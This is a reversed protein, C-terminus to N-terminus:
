KNKEYRMRLYKLSGCFLAIDTILVIFAIGFLYRPDLLFKAKFSEKKKFFIHALRLICVALIGWFFLHNVLYGLLFFALLVTYVRFVSYHWDKARGALIDYTSFERFRNFIGKISGPIQWYVLAKDTYHIKAGLERAKDMFIKDEGARFAPFGGVRQCARKKFLSSAIFNTRFAKGGIKDKPPIYAILSCEKMFSDIEPEYAGYVAEITGDEEMPSAIEELWRRDLRIGGDTFAILKNVSHSVGINRGEGPYAKKTEILRIRFPAKERNEKIISATRDRSGGDVFIAEDPLLTGGAISDILGQVSEEENKVPVVLSVKAMAIEVERFVQIVGKGAKRYRSFVM